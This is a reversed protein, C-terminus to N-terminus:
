LRNAICSTNFTVHAPGHVHHSSTKIDKESGGAVDGCVCVQSRVVMFRRSSDVMAGARDKNEEKKCRAEAGGWPLGPKGM